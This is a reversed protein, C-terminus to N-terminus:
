LTDYKVIQPEHVSIIELWRRSDKNIKCLENCCLWSLKQNLLQFNIIEPEGM